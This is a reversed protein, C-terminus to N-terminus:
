SKIIKFRKSQGNSTVIELIYLGSFEIDFPLTITYQSDVRQSFVRRGNLSYINITTIQYTEDCQIKIETSVPNTIKINGANIEDEISLVLDRCDGNTIFTELLEGYEITLINYEPPATADGSIFGIAYGNEVSLESTYFYPDPRRYDDIVDWSNEIATIKPLIIVVTDNVEGITSSEMSYYGNCDFDTGDWIRIINRSEQGRLIDIIELDLGDIDISIIKGSLILDDPHYQLTKCFTEPIFSCAYGIIPTLFIFSILLKLKKM